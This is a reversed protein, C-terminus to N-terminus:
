CLTQIVAEGAESAAAYFQRLQEFSPAVYEDFVDEEDWIAPYIQAQAMAAPDMRSRLNEVSIAELTASVARVGAPSLLRPPGYGLDEGAEEGGWIADSVEAPTPEGSGTLLWHIGHWSKDLDVFSEDDESELLDEVLEPDNLIRAAEDAGRRYGVWLMGM